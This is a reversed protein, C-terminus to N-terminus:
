VHARGIELIYAGADGLFLRGNPFNFLFFGAIASELVILAAGIGHLGTQSSIYALAFSCLMAFGSALGNLGDIINFSNTVGTAAFITIVLSIPILLLAKDILELDVSMLRIDFFFMVLVGSLSIAVLRLWPRIEDGLDELTSILFIPVLTILYYAYTQRESNSWSFILLASVLGLVIGIGGFRLAPRVHSSQPSSLDARIRKTRLRSKVFLGSVLYTGAFCVLM